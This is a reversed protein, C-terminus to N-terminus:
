DDNAATAHRRSIEPGDLRLTALNAEYDIVEVTATTKEGGDARELEIYDSNAVLEATVLINGGDILVGLDAAASRPPKVGPGFFIM